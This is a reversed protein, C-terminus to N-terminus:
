GNATQEQTMPFFPCLKLRFFWFDSSRAWSVMGDAAADLAELLMEAQSGTDSSLAVKLFAKLPHSAHLLGFNLDSVLGCRTHLRWRLKVFFDGTILYTPREYISKGALVEATGTGEEGWIKNLVFFRM